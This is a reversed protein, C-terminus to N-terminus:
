FSDKKNQHNEERIPSLRPRNTARAPHLRPAPRMFQTEPGHIGRELDWEVNLMGNLNGSLNYLM